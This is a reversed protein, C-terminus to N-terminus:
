GVKYILVRIPSIYDTLAQVQVQTNSIRATNSQITEGTSTDYLQIILDKTNLPHPITATLSTITVAYSFSSNAYESVIPIPHFVVGDNTFTWRNTTENYILYTNAEQGRSIEIGANAVPVQPPTVNSNLTIINDKIQLNETSIITMEGSVSFNGLVKLTGNIIVNDQLAVRLVDNPESIIKTQNATGILNGIGIGGSSFYSALIRRTQGSEDLLALYKFDINPEVLIGTPKDVKQNLAAPLNQINEIKLMVESIVNNDQDNLRLFYDMLTLALDPAVGSSVFTRKVGLKDVVQIEFSEGSPKFYLSRDRFADASNHIIKVEQFSNGLIENEYNTYDVVEGPEILRLKADQTFNTANNWIDYSLNDWDSVPFEQFLVVPQDFLKIGTINGGVFSVRETNPWISLLEQSDFANVTSGQYIEVIITKEDDSETWVGIDSKQYPLEILNFAKESYDLGDYISGSPYIYNEDLLVSNEKYYPSFPNEWIYSKEEAQFYVKMGKYFDFAFAIPNATVLADFQAKDRFVLKADLPAQGLTKYNQSVEAM